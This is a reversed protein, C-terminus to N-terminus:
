RMGACVPFRSCRQRQVRRIPEGVMVSGCIPCRSDERYMRIPALTHGVNPLQALMAAIYPGGATNGSGLGQNCATLDGLEPERDTQVLRWARQLAVLYVFQSAGTHLQIRLGSPYLREVEFWEGRDLTRLRRGVLSAVEDFPFPLTRRM